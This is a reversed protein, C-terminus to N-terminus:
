TKENEQMKYAEAVYCCPPDLLCFRQLLPVGKGALKEDEQFLRCCMCDVFPKFFSANYGLVMLRLSMLGLTLSSADWLGSVLYSIAVIM